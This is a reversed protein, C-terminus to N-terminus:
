KVYPLCRNLDIGPSIESRAAVLTIMLPTALVYAIVPHRPPHITPGGSTICAAMLRWDCEVDFTPLTDCRAAIAARFPSRSATAAIRVAYSRRPRRMCSNSDAIGPTVHM